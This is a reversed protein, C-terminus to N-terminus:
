KFYLALKRQLRRSKEPAHAIKLRVLTKASLISSVKSYSMKEINTIEDFLANIENMMSSQVTRM